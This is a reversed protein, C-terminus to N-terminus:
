IVVSVVVVVAVVVFVANLKHDLANLIFNLVDLEFAM